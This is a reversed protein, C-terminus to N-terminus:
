KIKNRTIFIIMTLSFSLLYAVLSGIVIGYTPYLFHIVTAYLAVSSIGISMTKAMGAAFDPGHDRVCIVMTSTLIAPFVSFIGSIISNVNSLSVAIAIVIGALIGRTVIKKLTYHVKVQGISIIKKKHELILFTSVLCIVYIGLSIFINTIEFLILLSSLFTWITFASIFAFLTSRHILLAFIFLFIVNFGLEAPVVAAADSAFNDGKTIAIFVFAVVITSPLTGLIGGVKSGYREAIFMIIIVVLASLIFPLISQYLFQMM